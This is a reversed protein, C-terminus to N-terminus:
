SQLGSWNSPTFLDTLAAGVISWTLLPVGAVPEAVLYWGQPIASEGGWWTTGDSYHVSYEEGM